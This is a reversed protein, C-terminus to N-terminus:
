YFYMSFLQCSYVRGVAKILRGIFLIPFSLALACVTTGITFILMTSLFLQRTTFWQTLVASAPIIIGMVLMFGTAMWQVTPLSIAFEAMLTTLAINLLTENLIAFFAGIILSVMIPMVKVNPNDALYEYKKSDDNM